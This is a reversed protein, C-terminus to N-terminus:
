IPRSLGGLLPARWCPEGGVSLAADATEAALVALAQQGHRDACVVTGAPGAASAVALGPALGTGALHALGRKAQGLYHTRAM